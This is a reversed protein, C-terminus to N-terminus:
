TIQYRNIKNLLGQRTLGLRKAARTRNGGVKKLVKRIMRQELQGTAEKLTLEVGNAPSYIASSPQLKPSLSSEDISDSGYALTLARQIENQLERVNGPWAYNVLLAMARPTISTKPRNFKDAMQRLFHDALLPIDERRERLPPMGIPFVNIRYYLDERFAGNKVEQALDRNTSAIFRFDVRVTRNGGVPRLQGEQLVRLLKVQMAPSMEGIEDLFVTGGHAAEFLGRKDKLAGTFAGKVHGFLESELLSEALAGCNEAVFPQDKFPGNFHIVRALLEKGTGTEGQILVSTPTEILKDVLNFIRRIPASNGIMGQRNYREQAESRLHRNEAELRGAHDMLEGYLRANEIAIAVPGALIELFGAEQLSFDGAQKNMAYLVGIFKQRARLPVCIMSRPKFADQFQVPTHVRSDKKTDAIILPRNERLVWGAAGLDDPFDITKLGEKPSAKGFDKEVTHIFFFRRQDPDHLAVSAGGIHLSEQIEHLIRSLMVDPDRIAQISTTIELLLQLEERRLEIASEELAM